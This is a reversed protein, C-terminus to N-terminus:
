LSLLDIRSTTVFGIGNDSEDAVELREGGFHELPGDAATCEM